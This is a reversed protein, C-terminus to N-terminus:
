KRSLWDIKCVGRVCVAQPIKETYCDYIPCQISQCNQVRWKERTEVTIRNLVDVGCTNCCSNREYKSVIICEDDKKCSVGIMKGDWYKIAVIGIFLITLITSFMIIFKRKMTQSELPFGNSNSGIKDIRVM